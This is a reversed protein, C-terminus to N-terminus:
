RPDSQCALSLRSHCHKEDCVFPRRGQWGSYLKMRTHRSPCVHSRLTWKSLITKMTERPVLIMCLGLLIISANFFFMMLLVLIGIHMWYLGYYQNETTIFQIEVTYIGHGDCTGATMGSSLYQISDINQKRAARFIDLNMQITNVSPHERIKRGTFYEWADTKEHFAMTIGLDLFIGSGPMLYFWYGIDPTDCCSHFVEIKSNSPFSPFTLDIRATGLPRSTPFPYRVVIDKYLRDNGFLLDGPDYLQGRQSPCSTISLRARFDAPLLNLYYMDFRGTDLPFDHDELTSLDYIRDMYVSWIPDSRLEHISEFVPFM